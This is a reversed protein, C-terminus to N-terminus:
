TNALSPCESYLPELYDVALEERGLGREGVSLVTCVGVLAQSWQM